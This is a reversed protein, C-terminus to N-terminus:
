SFDEMSANILTHKTRTEAVYKLNYEQELQSMDGAAAAMQAQKSPIRWPDLHAVLPWELGKAKHVTSLTVEGNERSFVRKLV